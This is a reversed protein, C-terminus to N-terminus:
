QPVAMRTVHSRLLRQVEPGLLRAMEAAGDATFHCDGDRFLNKALAHHLDLFHGGSEEVVGRLLAIRRAYREPEYYKAETAREWPMPTVLVLVTIGDGSLKSVTARMFDLLPNGPGLPRDYAQLIRDMTRAFRFFRETPTAPRDVPGLVDWAPSEQVNKRVGEFTLFVNEGLSTRLARALLVRPATMGRIYYPLALTEPVDALDIEGMVDTFGRVGGAPVFTRLNAVFVVLKPHIRAIRGALSWYSYFDMGPSGLMLTRAHMPGLTREQLIGVYSPNPPFGMITSDGAWVVDPPSREADRIRDLLGRHMYLEAGTHRAADGGTRYTVVAAAAVLLLWTCVIVSVGRM